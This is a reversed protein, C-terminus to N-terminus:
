VGEVVTPAGTLVETSETVVPAIGVCSQAAVPAIGVCSQAAVPAIGVCSQAAVPAVGVTSVDFGIGTFRECSNTSYPGGTRQDVIAMQTATTM